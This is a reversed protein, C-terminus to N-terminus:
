INFIKTFRTFNGLYSSINQETIVFAEERSIEMKKKKVFIYYKKEKLRNSIIFRILQTKRKELSRWRLTTLYLERYGVRQFPYFFFEIEELRLIVRLYM